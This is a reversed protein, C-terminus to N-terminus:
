STNETNGPKSVKNCVVVINCGPNFALSGEPLPARDDSAAATASPFSTSATGQTGDKASPEQYSRVYTEVSLMLLLSNDGLHDACATTIGPAKDSVFSAANM